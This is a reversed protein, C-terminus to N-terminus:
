EPFEGRLFADVDKRTLILYRNDEKLWEGVAKLTEPDYDPLNEYPSTTLYKDLERKDIDGM